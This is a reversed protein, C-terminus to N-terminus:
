FGTSELQLPLKGKGKKDRVGNVLPISKERALFIYVSAIHRVGLFNFSAVEFSVGETHFSLIPNWSCVFQALPSAFM